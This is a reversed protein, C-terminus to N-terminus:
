VRTYAYIGTTHTRVRTYSRVCWWRVGVRSCVGVYACLYIPVRDSISRLSALSDRLRDETETLCEDFHSYMESM